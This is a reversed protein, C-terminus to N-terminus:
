TCDAQRDQVLFLGPLWGDGNLLDKQTDLVKEVVGVGLRWSLRLGVVHELLIPGLVLPADLANDTLVRSRLACLIM